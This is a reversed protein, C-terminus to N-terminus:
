CRRITTTTPWRAQSAWCRRVCACIATCRPCAPARRNSWRATCPLRCTPASCRPTSRDRSSARARRTCTARCRRRWSRASSLTVKRGDGLTVEPRPLEAEALQSYINRPQALVIGGAALLAEGERSLTHPANRLADEILMDFRRKLQPEAALYARAKDAGLTQIGLAVWSTKEDLLSNLAQAQRLREQDPAERLDEDGKLSAYVYLRGLTRQADSIASLTKLMSAASTGLEPQLQDLAEARARLERWAVDWAAPTPYLDRLDWRQAGPADAAMVTAFQLALVAACLAHRIPRHLRAIM